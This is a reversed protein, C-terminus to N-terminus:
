LGVRLHPQRLFDNDLDSYSFGTSLMVNKNLWTETFSHVSLLDYSTGQRSTIDQQFSEGPFQTAKLADDMRGSEYRVGVGFDTANIHHTM